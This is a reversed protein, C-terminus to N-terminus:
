LLSGSTPEAECVPMKVPDCVRPPSTVGALPATDQLAPGKSSSQLVACMVSTSNTDRGPCILHQLSCSTGQLSILERNDQRASTFHGLAKETGLLPHTQAPAPPQLCIPQQPDPMLSKTVFVSGASGLLHWTSGSTDRHCGPWLLTIQPCQGATGGGAGGRGCCLWPM